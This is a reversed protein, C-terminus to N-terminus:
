VRNNFLEKRISLLENASQDLTYIIYSNSYKTNLINHISEVLSRSSTDSANYKTTTM